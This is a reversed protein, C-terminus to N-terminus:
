SLPEFVRFFGSYPSSPRLNSYDLSTPFHCSHMCFVGIHAAVQFGLSDSVMCPGSSSTSSKQRIPSFSSSRSYLDLIDTGSSNADLEAQV